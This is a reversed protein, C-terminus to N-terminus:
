QDDNFEMSAVGWLSSEQTYDPPNFTPLLRYFWPPTYHKALETKETNSNESTEDKNPYLHHYCDAWANGITVCNYFDQKAEESPIRPEDASVIPLLILTLLISRIIHLKM